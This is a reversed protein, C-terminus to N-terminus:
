NKNKFGNFENYIAPLLEVSTKDFTDMVTLVGFNFHNGTRTLYVGFSKNIKYLSSIAFQSIKFGKLSQIYEPHKLVADADLRKAKLFNYPIDLANNEVEGLLDGEAKGEAKGEAEGEAEGALNDINAKMYGTFEIGEQNNMIEINTTM